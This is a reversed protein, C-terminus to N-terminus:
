LRSYIFSELRSFAIRHRLIVKAKSLRASYLQFLVLVSPLLVREWFRQEFSRM